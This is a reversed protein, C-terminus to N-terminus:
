KEMIGLRPNSLLKFGVESTKPLWKLDTIAGRHSAEISSCLIYSLRPTENNKRHDDLASGDNASESGTKRTTSNLINQYDSIDWLAIQGNSCGAAIINPEEPNIQFTHVDDPAELILQYSFFLYCVQPHIPDHFSWILIVAKEANASFSREIREDLTNRSVCAVALVGKLTPHWDICSISKDKSYILDTFSQYEKLLHSSLSKSAFRNSIVIWCQLRGRM